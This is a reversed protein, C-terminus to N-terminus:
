CGSYEENEVTTLDAIIQELYGKNFKCITRRRLQLDDDWAVGRKKVITAVISPDGSLHHRAHERNTLPIGNLPDYRLANSQSKPVYHHIVETPEGSVLSYPNESILKIQYLKDARKVLSKLSQKRTKM